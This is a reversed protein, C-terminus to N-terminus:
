EDTELLLLEITSSHLKIYGKLIGAAVFNLDPTHVQAGAAHAEVADGIRQTKGPDKVEAERQGVAIRQKMGLCAEDPHALFPSDSDAKGHDLRLQEFLKLLPRVLFHSVLAPIERGSPPGRVSKEM